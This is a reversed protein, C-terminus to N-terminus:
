ELKVAFLHLELITVESERDTEVSSHSRIRINQRLGDDRTKGNENM